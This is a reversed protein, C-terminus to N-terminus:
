FCDIQFSVKDDYVRGDQFDGYKGSSGGIGQRDIFVPEMIHIACASHQKTIIVRRVMGLYLGMGVVFVRVM